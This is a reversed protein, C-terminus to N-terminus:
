IECNNGNLEIKSKSTPPQHQLTHQHQHHHQRHHQAPNASTSLCGKTKEASRNAVLLGQPSTLLRSEAPVWIRWCARLEVAESGSQSLSVEAAYEERAVAGTGEERVEEKQLLRM